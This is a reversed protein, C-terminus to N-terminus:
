NLLKKNVYVCNLDSWYPTRSIVNRPHSILLFGKSELFDNLAVIDCGGKYTSRTSVETVIFNVHELTESASKLVELEAEQVNMFIADPIINNEKCFTDFRVSPVQILDQINTKGYDGDERRRSSIFDIEFM